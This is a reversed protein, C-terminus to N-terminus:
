SSSVSRGLLSTRWAESHEGPRAGIQSMEEFGGQLEAPLLRAFQGMSGMASSFVLSQLVGLIAAIVSALFVWVLATRLTASSKEREAVFVEEGPSTLVKVWTQFISKFDM